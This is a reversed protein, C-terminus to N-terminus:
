NISKIKYKVIKSPLKLEVTENITKGLLIKGLPSNASIIGTSPSSETSGLITYSKEKGNSEIIVSSGLEIFNKNGETKIIEAKKLIEETELIRQNLGRLKGKAIQYAANESFDGDSALRKVEEALKLQIKKMRELNKELELFKGATIRPDIEGKLYKDPKRAPVRM